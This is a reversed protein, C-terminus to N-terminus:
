RDWLLAESQLVVNPAARHSITSQTPPTPPSPTYSLPYLRCMTSLREGGKLFMNSPCMVNSFPIQSTKLVQFDPTTFYPKAGSTFFSPLPVLPQHPRQTRGPPHVKRDEPQAKPRLRPQQESRAWSGSIRTNASRPAATPCWLLQEPTQSQGGRRPSALARLIAM